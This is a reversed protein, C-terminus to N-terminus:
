NRERPGVIESAVDHCPKRHFCVEYILAAILMGILPGLWYIWHSFWPGGALAPGFSRAPNMSAGSIPGAFIAELAVAGGVVLPGRLQAGRDAAAAMIVFMLIFSLVLELGLSQIAGESPVTAGMDAVIGFLGRLVLAAMVAGGLQAAWYAPLDRWPFRGVLAFAATVAPNIHAGSLRGLTYIAIAVAAGFSLGVGLNTVQGGSKDNIMIAGAGVFVLIFTGILEALMQRAM